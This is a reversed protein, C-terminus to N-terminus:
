LSPECFRERLTQCVLPAEIVLSKQIPKIINTIKVIFQKAYQYVIGAGVWQCCHDSKLQQRIQDM